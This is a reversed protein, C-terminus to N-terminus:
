RKLDPRTAPSTAASATTIPAFCDGNRCCTASTVPKPTICDAPTMTSERTSTECLSRFDRTTGARIASQLGRLRWNPLREIKGEREDCQEYLSALGENFWAPCQPFNSEMFPHVIEHVLTGGGTAINMILARKERSYFGYPTSPTLDFLESCHKRYSAKDKFLWIDIIQTRNKGFYDKKLLRIAFNVTQDARQQVEAPGEDGIVVFPAEIVISFQESPLRARLDEVHAALRDDAVGAGGATM